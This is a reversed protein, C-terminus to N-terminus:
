FETIIQSRKTSLSEYNEIEQLPYNDSEMWTHYGFKVSILEWYLVEPPIQKLYENREEITYGRSSHFPLIGKCFNRSFKTIPYLFRLLDNRHGGMKNFRVTVDQTLPIGFELYLDLAYTERPTIRDSATKSVLLENYAVKLLRPDYVDNWRDATFYGFKPFKKGNYWEMLEKARIYEKPDWARKFQLPDIKKKEKQELLFKIFDEEKNRPVMYSRYEDDMNM